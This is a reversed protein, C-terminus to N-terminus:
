TAVGKVSVIHGKADWEILTGDGLTVTNTVPGVDNHELLLKNDAAGGPQVAKTLWEHGGGAPTVTIEDDLYGPTDDAGNTKVRFSDGVEVWTTTTTAFWGWSWAFQAQREFSESNVRLDVVVQHPEAPVIWDGDDDLVYPIITGEAVKAGIDLTEGAVTATGPDFETKDNQVFVEVDDLGNDNGAPDCPDLQVTAQSNDWDAKLKGFRIRGASDGALRVIAWVDGGGSTDQHWLVAASGAAAPQLATADADIIEAHIVQQDADELRLRAVTVGALCARGIAGAALPELLVVFRGQHLTQDPMDGRFAVANKFSQEAVSGGDPLFIPDGLGLVDFRARSEGSENKVLVIGASRYGPTAQQGLNATRQHFDKAADIFANYAKAPVALPDGTRVKKMADSM